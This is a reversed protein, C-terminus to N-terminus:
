SPLKALATWYRYFSRITRVFKDFDLPKHIYSNAGLDYSKVVDEQRDSRAIITVPIRRLSKNSKLRRLVEMGNVTPLDLGLLILGPRPAKGDGSYRRRRYLFNLAERGDKLVFLRNPVKAKQLVMKTILADEADDEVLLINLVDRSM